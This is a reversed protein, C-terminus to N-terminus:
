ARATWSASQKLHKRIVMLLTEEDVPKSLFDSAGVLKARVRDIIGDNGTLIVIPTNRFFSLKRLSGCIEYGNTNPMVLDLFLLDPKRALLITLARLADNVGVFRYGAATLIKEMTRCILPSDDVCAILPGQQAASTSLIKDTPPAILCPLDPIEVLEVLGLQIYPLLSRAVEAVDRQMQAAVDRLTHQGDLLRLLTQYVHVSTREQLQEPQRIVPALNPSFDAVKAAQYLQWLQSAEAIAQTVDILVLQTSLSNDQNIQYVMYMAQTVEFFVEVIVSRIMKVAQEYTIKQQVWLCLLQYEWCITLDATAAIGALTRQMALIEAPTKAPIQPCHEVLNRQWRRVPHTTGTAYILRGLYLYFSWKQKKRGTLVLEGSFQSQKLIGFLQAQKSANFESIFGIPTIEKATMM